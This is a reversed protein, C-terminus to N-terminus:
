FAWGLHMLLYLHNNHGSLARDSTGTNSVQSRLFGRGYRATLGVSTGLGFSSRTETGGTVWHMREYDHAVVLSAFPTLSVARASLFESGVSIGVPTRLRGFNGDVDYTIAGNSGTASRSSEYYTWETGGVGCAQVPGANLGLALRGGLSIDNDAQAFRDLSAGTVEGSIRGTRISLGVSGGSAGDTGQLGFTLTAREGPLGLCVQATLRMPSSGAIASCAVIVVLTQTNM